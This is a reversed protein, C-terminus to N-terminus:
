DEFDATYSHQDFPYQKEEIEPPIYQQRKVAVM